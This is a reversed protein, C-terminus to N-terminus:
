KSIYEMPMRWSFKPAGHLEDDQSCSWIGINSKCLTYSIVQMQANRSIVVRIEEEASLQPLEKLKLRWLVRPRGKSGNSYFSPSLILPNGTPIPCILTNNVKMNVLEGQQGRSAFRDFYHSKIKLLYIEM